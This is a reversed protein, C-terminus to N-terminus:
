GFIGKNMKDALLITDATSICNRTPGRLRFFEKYIQECSESVGQRKESLEPYAWFTQDAKPIVKKQKWLASDEYLIFDSISFMDIYQSNSLIFQKSMEWDKNTEGPFNKMMYVHTVIGAKSVTKLVQEANKITVGKNMKKLIKCSASELGFRLLRCGGSFLIESIKKDAIDASFRANAAWRITKNDNLVSQAFFIMFSDPLEADLFYIGKAKYKQVIKKIDKIIKKYSGNHVTLHFCYKQDACFMCKGWSCKPFVRFPLVTGPSRYKHLPFRDFDPLPPLIYPKKKINLLWCGNSFM